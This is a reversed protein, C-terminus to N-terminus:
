DGKYLCCWDLHYNPRSTYKAGCECTTTKVKYIDAWGRVYKSEFEDTTMSLRGKVMSYTVFEYYVVGDKLETATIHTEKRILTRDKLYTDFFERDILM